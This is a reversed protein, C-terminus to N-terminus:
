FQVKASQEVCTGFGFGNGEKVQGFPRQGWETEFEGTYRFVKGVSPYLGDTGNCSWRYLHPQSRLTCVEADITDVLTVTNDSPQVLYFRESHGSNFTCKLLVDEDAKAATTSALICIILASCKTMIKM